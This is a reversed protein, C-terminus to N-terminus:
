IILVNVRRGLSKEWFDAFSFDFRDGLILMRLAIALPDVTSQAMPQM